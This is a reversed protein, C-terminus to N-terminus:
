ASTEVQLRMLHNRDILIDIHISVMNTMSGLDHQTLGNM